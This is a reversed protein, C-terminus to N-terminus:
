RDFATIGQLVARNRQRRAIAELEQSFHDLAAPECLLELEVRNRAFDNPQATESLTVRVVIHGLTDVCRFILEAFGFDSEEQGGSFVEQQNTSKPFGVLANALVGVEGNSFYATAAGRYRGNDASISLEELDVDEYVLEIALHPSDNM